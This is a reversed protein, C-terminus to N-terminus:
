GRVYNSAVKRAYQEVLDAGCNPCKAIIQGVSGGCVPCKDFMNKTQMADGWIWGHHAELMHEVMKDVASDKDKATFSQNCVYCLGEAM